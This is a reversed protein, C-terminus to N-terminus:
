GSREMVERFSTDRYLEPLEIKYSEMRAWRTAQGRVITGELHSKVLSECLPVADAATYICLFVCRPRMSSNPRSGHLTRTHMLCVSGAPGLVSVASNEAKNQVEATAMATFRDDHWVSHIPGKHSGPVMRLCGNDEGMHDLHLMATVIDSNTHPTATFDQHFKVDVRSRPPKTNIKSHHFKVDPGILDAVMDTMSSNMMVDHYTASIEVPNNVRWLAPQHRTHVPDLDFRPKQDATEGWNEDRQSAQELWEDYQTKLAELQTNTVANEVVLFGDQWIADFQSQNLVKM